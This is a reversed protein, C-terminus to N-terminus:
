TFFSPFFSSSDFYRCSLRRSAPGSFTKLTGCPWYKMIPSLRECDHSERTQPETGRFFMMPLTNAVYQGGFRMEIPHVRTGSGDRKPGGGAKGMLETMSLM